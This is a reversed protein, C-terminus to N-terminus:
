LRSFVISNQFCLNRRYQATVPLLLDWNEKITWLVCIGFMRLSRRLCSVWISSRVPRWCLKSMLDSFANRPCSCIRNAGTVRRASAPLKGGYHHSECCAYLAGDTKLYVLCHVACGVVSASMPIPVCTQRTFTLWPIGLATGMSIPGLLQFPVAMGVSPQRVSLCSMPFIVTSSVCHSCWNPIALWIIYLFIEESIAWASAKITSTSAPLSLTNHMLQGLVLNHVVKWLM